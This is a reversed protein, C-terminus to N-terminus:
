DRERCQKGGAEGGGVELGLARLWGDKAGRPVLAVKHHV